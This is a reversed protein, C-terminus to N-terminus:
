EFLEVEIAEQLLQFHKDLFYVKYQHHISNQAILLDPIGVGNMEKQLCRVQYNIIEEWETQLSLNTVKYLLRILEKQGNM